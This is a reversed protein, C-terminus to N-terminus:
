PPLPHRKLEDLSQFLGVAAVIVNAVLIAGLVAAGVPGGDEGGLAVGSVVAPLSMGLSVVSLLMGVVAHVNGEPYSWYIFKAPLTIIFMSISLILGLPHFEEGSRLAAVNIAFSLIFLIIGLISLPSINLTSGLGDVLGIAAPKIPGLVDLGTSRRLYTSFALWSPISFGAAANQPFIGSFLSHGLLFNLAVGGVTGITQGMSNLPGDWLNGASSVDYGMATAVLQALASPRLLALWQGLAQVLTKLAFVLEEAKSQLGIFSLAFRIVATDTAAASEDGDLTNWKSLERLMDLFSSVVGDVYDVIRERLYSLGQNLLSAVYRAAAITEQSLWDMAKQVTSAITNWLQGLQKMGWDAIAEALNVLFTGLAVLGDYFMQGLQVLVNVFGPMGDPAAGTAGNTVKAWPLIRVVDYPLNILLVYSTVDVYSYVQVNTANQLLRSLVNYANAGSLSLAIVNMVSESVSAQSLDEGYLPADALPWQRSAEGSVLDAELKSDLFISRPVVITNVGVVFPALTADMM